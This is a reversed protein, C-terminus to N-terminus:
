TGGKCARGSARFAAYAGIGLVLVLPGVTALISALPIHMWVVMFAGYVPLVVLAIAALVLAVVGFVSSKVVRHVPTNM